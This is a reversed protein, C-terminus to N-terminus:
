GRANIYASPTQNTKPKESFSLRKADGILSNYILGATTSKDKDGTLSMAMAASLKYSLAICFKVSWITTTTVKYTYEAIAVDLNSFIASVTLTPIYKIAYEQANKEEVTSDNFVNWMSSVTLTPYAYCFNWESDSINLASLTQTVTAFSWNSDGLAEDRCPQWFLNAVVASPHVNADLQAQTIVNQGLNVLSLNVIDLQTM